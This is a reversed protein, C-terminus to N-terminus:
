TPQGLRSQLSHHVWQESHRIDEVNQNAAIGREEVCPPMTYPSRRWASRSVMSSVSCVDWSAVVRQGGGTARVNGAGFGACMAGAGIPDNGAGDADIGSIAGLTNTASRKSGGTSGPLGRRPSCNEGSPRRPISAASAPDVTPSATITAPQASLGLPSAVWLGLPSAVSGSALVVGFCGVAGEDADDSGSPGGAGPTVAATSVVGPTTAVGIGATTAVGIGATTAM